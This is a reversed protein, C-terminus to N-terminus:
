RVARGMWRWYEAGGAMAVDNHGARPLLLLEGKVKAADHLAKGMRVPVILDREGHAIWVPAGLSAVLRESDFHVRSIARWAWSVPRSVVLRAMARASTFPSQLVLAHPAAGRGALHAALETAVASGLSHGFLVVDAAPAGLSDRAFDYAARADRGSGRYTPTGALGGYGRYEALLVRAGTRRALERAWPIQWVALDANGHFALVLRTAPVGEAADGAGVFYGLLPQGDDAEYTVQRAWSPVGESPPQPPQFVIREQQWWVLALFIALVAVLTFAISAILRM